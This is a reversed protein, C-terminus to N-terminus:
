ISKKGSSIFISLKLELSITMFAAASRVFAKCVVIGSDGNLTHYYSSFSILYTDFGKSSVILSGVLSASGVGGFGILFLARSKWPDFVPCDRRWPHICIFFVPFYFFVMLEWGPFELM